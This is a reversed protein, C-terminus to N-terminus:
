LNFRKAATKLIKKLQEKLGRILKNLKGKKNMVELAEINKRAKEINGKDLDIRILIEYPFYNSEHRSLNAKLTRLLSILDEKTRPSKKIRITTIGEFLFVDINENGPFFSKKIKKSGYRTVIYVNRDQKWVKPNSLDNPINRARKLVVPRMHAAPYYLNKARFNPSYQDINVLNLMYAFDGPESEYKFIDYVKKWQPKKAKYYNELSHMELLFSYAFLVGLVLIPIYKMPNTLSVVKNVLHLSYSISISMMVFCVPAFTLYYRPQIKTSILAKFVITYVLPYVLFFFLFYGQPFGHNNKKFNIIFSISGTIIVVLFFLGYNELIVQYYRVLDDITLGRLGSVLNKIMAFISNHSLYKDKAGSSITLQIIPLSIFFALASSLYSFFVRGRRKKVMLFPALCLCSVMLFIIPQFGVSLLFGTQVAILVAFLWIRHERPGDTQFFKVLFYLYLVCFFVATSIPRGEQSYYILLPHLFFALVTLLIALHNEIFQLLLLIFLVATLAGFIAAHVRIGVENVGFNKITISQFFYDLPPQQQISARVALDFNFPNTDALRAQRGEDMWANKYDIKYLRAALAALFLLIIVVTKHRTFRKNLKM